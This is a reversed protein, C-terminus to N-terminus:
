SRGKCAYTYASGALRSPPPPPPPTSAQLETAHAEARRLQEALSACRSRLASMEAQARAHAEHADASGAAAAAGQAHLAASAEAFAAEHQGALARWKSASAQAADRERCASALQERLM